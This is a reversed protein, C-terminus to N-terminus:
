FDMARGAELGLIKRAWRDFEKQSAAAMSEGPRM